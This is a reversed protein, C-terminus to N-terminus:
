FNSAREWTSYGAAKSYEVGWVERISDSIQDLHRKSTSMKSAEYNEFDKKTKIKLKKINGDLEFVTVYIWLSELRRRLVFPLCTFM